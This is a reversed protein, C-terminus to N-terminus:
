STFLMIFLLNAEQWHVCNVTLKVINTVSFPSSSTNENGKWTCSLRPLIIASCDSPRQPEQPEWCKGKLGPKGEASQWCWPSHAKICCRAWHKRALTSWTCCGRPEPFCDPYFFHQITQKCHLFISCMEYLQWSDTWFFHTPFIFLLFNNFFWPTLLFLSAEKIKFHM